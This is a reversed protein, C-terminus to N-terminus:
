NVPKIFLPSPSPFSPRHVRSGPSQHCGSGRAIWKGANRTGTWTEQLRQVGGGRRSVELDLDFVGCSWQTLSAARLAHMRPHPPVAHPSDDVEHHKVAATNVTPWVM